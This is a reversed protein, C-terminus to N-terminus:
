SRLLDILEDVERRIEAIIASVGDPAAPEALPAAPAALPAAPAALPAAPPAAPAAPAVVRPPVVAQPKPLAAGASTTGSSSPHPQSVAQARLTLSSGGSASRAIKSNNAQEFFSNRKKTRKSFPDAPPKPQFNPDAPPIGFELAAKPVEISSLGYLSMMWYKPNIQFKVRSYILGTEIGLSSFVRYLHDFYVQCFEDEEHCSAVHGRRYCVSCWARLTDCTNVCHSSNDRCIPYCCQPARCEHGEGIKSTHVGCFRCRHSAYSHNPNFSHKFLLRSCSWLAKNIIGVEERQEEFARLHEPRLSIEDPPIFYPDTQLFPAVNGSGCCALVVRTYGVFNASEALGLKEAIRDALLWVAYSIARVSQLLFKKQPEVALDFTESDALGFLSTKLFEVVGDHVEEESTYRLAPALIDELGLVVLGPCQAKLFDGDRVADLSVKRIHIDAFLQEVIAPLALSSGNNIEFVLVSGNPSCLAFYSQTLFFSCFGYLKCDIAFESYKRNPQIGLNQYVNSEKIRQQLNRLDSRKIVPLRRPHPRRLPKVPRVEGDLNDATDM